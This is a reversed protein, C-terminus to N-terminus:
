KTDQEHDEQLGKGVRCYVALGLWCCGAGPTQSCLRYCLACLIGWATWAVVVGKMLLQCSGTACLGVAMDQEWHCGPCISGGVVWMCM